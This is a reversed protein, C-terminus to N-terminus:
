NLHGLCSIITNKFFHVFDHSYFLIDKSIIQTPFTIDPNNFFSLFNEKENFAKIVNDPLFQIDFDQYATRMYDLIDPREYYWFERLKNPIPYKYWLVPLYHFVLVDKVEENIFLKAQEAESPLFPMTFVLNNLSDGVFGLVGLCIATTMNVSLFAPTIGQLGDEVWDIMAVIYYWPFTYPNIFIFWGITIRISIIQYYIFLGIFLIERITELSTIDLCVNLQIQIFESLGDPLFYINRYNEIYFNYFGEQKTEYIYRPVEEIKPIVGFLMEFWNEPNELPPWSVSRDPLNNFYEAQLYTQNNSINNVTSLGPNEPYGFLMAIKKVNNDIIAYFGERIYTFQTDFSM